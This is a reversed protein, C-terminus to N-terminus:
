ETVKRYKRTTVEYTAIVPARDGSSNMYDFVERLSKGFTFADDVYLFRMARFDIDGIPVILSVTNRPDRCVLMLPVDFEAAIVAGMAMGHFDGACVIADFEGKHPELDKWARGILETLPNPNKM